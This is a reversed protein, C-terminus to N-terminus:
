QALTLGLWVIALSAVFIAGELAHLEPRRMHWLVLAAVFAVLGLKVQLTTDGWKDDHSALASGTAILVGIAVLTGYGFRRAIARLRERDPASREVPVVAAALFMQGGVFFAMAIVHLWRVFLM